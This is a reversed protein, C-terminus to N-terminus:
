SVIRSMHVFSALRQRDSFETPRLKSRRSTGQCRTKPQQTQVQVPQDQM